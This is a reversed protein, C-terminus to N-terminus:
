ASKLWTYSNHIPKAIFFLLLICQLVRLRTFNQSIKM